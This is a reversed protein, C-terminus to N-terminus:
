LNPNESNVTIGGVTPLEERYVRLGVSIFDQTSNEMLNEEEQIMNELVAKSTLVPSRLPQLRVSNKFEVGYSLIIPSFTETRLILEKSYELRTNESKIKSFDPCTKFNKLRKYQISMFGSRTRVKRNMSSLWNDKMIVRNQSSTNYTPNFVHFTQEVGQVWAKSLGPKEREGKGCQHRDLFEIGKVEKWPSKEIKKVRRYSKWVFSLVPDRPLLNIGQRVRRFNSKLVKFQHYTIYDLTGHVGVGGLIQPINLNLLGDMTCWNISSRNYLLVRNYLTPFDQIVLNFSQDIPVDNPLKTCLNMYPFKVIEMSGKRFYFPQSNIVAVEKSVYSKGISEEFNYQILLERWKSIIDKPAYALFDDGNVLCPSDLKKKTRSTCFLGEVKDWITISGGSAEEWLALNLICLVPFSKIDGMMQGFTQTCILNKEHFVKRGEWLSSRIESVTSKSIEPTYRDICEKFWTNIGMWNRKSASPSEANDCFSFIISMVKWVSQNFTKDVPVVFDELLGYKFCARDIYESMSPNINDTAARYDGSLWYLSEVSYGRAVWYRISRVRLNEIDSSSVDRGFMLNKNSCMNKKLCGQFPKGASFERANSTTISRVKLPEPLLTLNGKIRRTDINGYEFYPVPCPGSYSSGLPLSITLQPAVKLLCGLQGFIKMSGPLQDSCASTSLCKVSESIIRNLTVKKGFRLIVNKVSQLPFYDLVVEKTINQIYLEQADEIFSEPVEFSSKRAYNLGSTFCISKHDGKKIRRFLSKKFHSSFPFYSRIDKCPKPPLLDSGYAISSACCYYYKIIKTTMIENNSVIHDIAEAVLENSYHSAFLRPYYLRLLEGFVVFFNICQLVEYETGKLKWNSRLLESILPASKSWNMPSYIKILCDISVVFNDTPSYQIENHDM